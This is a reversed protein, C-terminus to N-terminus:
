DNVTMVLTNITYKMKNYFKMRKNGQRSFVSFMDVIDIILPYIEAHNKRMIRGVSQEINSKPTAMILTNLGPIDMGTSAMQYTGLIIDKTETEKLEHPKLKGVYYGASAINNNIIHTYLSTLHIRRDSLILIKRGEEILPALLDIILTIRPEYEVINNIMRATNLKGNYNLVEKSYDPDKSIYSIQKVIVNNNDIVKQGIFVYDGIYWKLVKTLGDLRNPTASLALMYKCNIGRRYSRSFSNCPSTHAEDVICMGFDSFIDTDYERSSISQIMGIVIDKGVVDTTKQVIRGVKANPLFQNIREIWQNVLFNLHVIVLTKTKMKSILYCASATKGFGCPLCLIGGGTTNFSELCKNIPEHQNERLDGAFPVDIEIGDSLCSKQPPGFKEIGYFKPLYLKSKNEMYVPFSVVNKSFDSPVYPKVTLELKIDNIEHDHLDKKYIVYGKKNIYTKMTNIINSYLVKYKILNVFFSKYSPIKAFLRYM